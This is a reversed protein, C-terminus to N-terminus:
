PPPSRRPPAESASITRVLRPIARATRTGFWTLDKGDCFVVRGARLAPTEALAELGLGFRWLPAAGYGEYVPDLVFVPIVPGGTDVAAALAANDGLRLDRRVWWIAPEAM